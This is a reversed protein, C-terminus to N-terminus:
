WNDLAVVNGLRYVVLRARQAGSAAFVTAGEELSGDPYFLLAITAPGNNPLAGAETVGTPFVVDSGQTVKVLGMEPESVTVASPVAMSQVLTWTTPMAYGVTNGQWQRVQRAGVDVKQIKGTAIARDRATSMLAGIQEVAGKAGKNYKKPSLLIASVSLVGIITLTVMLEVLTFGRDPHRRNM